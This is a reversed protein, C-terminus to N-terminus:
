APDQQRLWQLLLDPLSGPVAPSPTLLCYRSGDEVFGLPACLLGSAIDDRVLHWPGMAVGLGAVAAQLSFYFHEFQQGPGRPLATGTIGAWQQWAQRRTRCHLLPTRARLRPTGAALGAFWQELHDPRCVPGTREAFLPEAHSGAPWDFDDRRLAMDIGDAFSFPGGGAVLHLQQGPHLAQFHPWRPILWRMLLTPECSLVWSRSQRARMRLEQTAQRMRELGEHVAQALHRGADNLFVRRSRREFLTLGLEDELMRVARSIAGHTLHLETAARSFNQHRAAADFCRLAQLSPLRQGMIQSNLDGDRDSLM